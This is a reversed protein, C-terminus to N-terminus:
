PTVSLTSAQVSLYARLDSLIKARRESIRKRRHEGTKELRQAIDDDTEGQCWLALITKDDQSLKKSFSRLHPRLEAVQDARLQADLQDAHAELAAQDQYKQITEDDSEQGAHRGHKRWHNACQRYCIGIAWKDFPRDRDWRKLCKWMALLIEQVVDKAHNPGVKDRVIAAFRKLLGHRVLLECFETNTIPIVPTDMRPNDAKPQPLCPLGTHIDIINSVVNDDGPSPHQPRHATPSVIDSLAADDDFIPLPATPPM